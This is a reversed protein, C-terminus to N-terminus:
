KEKDKEPQYIELEKRMLDVFDCLYERADKPEDAKDIIVEFIGMCAGMILAMTESITNGRVLLKVVRDLKKIQEENM